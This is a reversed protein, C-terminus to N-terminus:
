TRFGRDKNMKVVIEGEVREKLNSTGTYEHQRERVSLLIDLTSMTLSVESDAQAVLLRM